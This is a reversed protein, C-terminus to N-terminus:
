DDDSLIEILEEKTMGCLWSPYTIIGNEDYLIQEIDVAAM